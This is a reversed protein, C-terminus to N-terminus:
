RRVQRHRTNEEHKIRDHLLDVVDKQTNCIALKNFFGYVNNSLRERVDVESANISEVMEKLDQPSDCLSSPVILVEHTSSPLVFLLKEGFYDQASKLAMENMMAIAGFENKSNSLVLPEKETALYPVGSAESIGRLVFEQSMTKQMALSLLEEDTMHLQKIQIEKTIAFSGSVGDGM